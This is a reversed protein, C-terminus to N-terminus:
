ATPARASIMWCAAIFRVDTGHVYPDFAPRVVDIIRQRTDDDKEQLVRGVPGVWTFYQFLDQVPLTCPVDIAQVDIGVWGSEELIQEIRGRDALAFPGPADPARAPVEPMFPAAAREAATIFPNEARSRWVIVTLEGNDRVARRLNAFAAVFDAFFMVGLRSVILDFSARAFAHTQADARIFRVRASEREARQRAVALM